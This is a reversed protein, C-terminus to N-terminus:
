TNMQPVVAASTIPLTQNQRYPRAAIRLAVAPSTPRTRYRHTNGRHIAKQTTRNADWCFGALLWMMPSVLDALSVFAAALMVALGAAWARRARDRLGDGIARGMLLLFLTTGVLGVTSLLLLLLSSSRNSGLGVGLSGSDLFIRWSSVDAATRSRISTGRDLKYDVVDRVYSIIEPLIVMVVSLVVLVAVAVVAHVRLGRTVARYAGWATAAVAFFAAGGLATASGSEVVLLVDGVALALLIVTTVPRPRLIFVFATLLVGSMLAFAGLHSAESFQATLRPTEVYAYANPTNNRFFEDPWEIDVQRFVWAAMAVATGVVAPIPPIWNRRDGSSSLSLFLALNLLLYGVQAVNSTTYGLVSLSNVQEDIGVGSAVVPMGAFLTPGILTVGTAWFGFAFPLGSGPQPMGVRIYVLPLYLLMGMYFPSFSVAGVVVAASDSFPIAAAAVALVGIRGRAVLAILYALAFLLGLTTM